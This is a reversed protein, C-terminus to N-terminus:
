NQNKNQAKLHEEYTMSFTHSGDGKAVFFLYDVKEPDLAAEISAKGPSAIPAPPLGAHIYTNYPSEIAIDDYSLNPKREELIYQVTACSQLNMQERIRNHFVASITKRESEVQAEREVISALTIAENTDLGLLEAKAELEKTYVSGFEDLMMKVIAEEKNEEQESVQYTSPYLYGELGMGAPVSDLFSYSEKYASADRTLSVFKERDVLGKESLLDAIQRVEYGEPVTFTEVGIDMGGETLSSLIEELSMSKSLSYVGAKFGSDKGEVRSVLRFVKEDSILGKESLLSAIQPTAYGSPIEVEVVKDSSPDVPGKAQSVYGKFGFYGAALAGAVIFVVVTKKM